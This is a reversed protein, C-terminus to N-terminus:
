VVILKADLEIIITKTIPIRPSARLWYRGSQITTTDVLFPQPQDGNAGDVGPTGKSSPEIKAILENSTEISANLNVTETSM